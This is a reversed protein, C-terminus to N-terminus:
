RGKDEIKIFAAYNNEIEALACLVSEVLFQVENEDAGDPSFLRLRFNGSRQVFRYRVSSLRELAIPIMQVLASVGACVIDQGKEAYEAHGSVTLTRVSGQPERHVRVHIM